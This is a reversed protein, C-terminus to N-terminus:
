FKKEKAMFVLTSDYSHFIYGYQNTYSKMISNKREGPFHVRQFKPGDIHFRFFRGIPVESLKRQRAAPM